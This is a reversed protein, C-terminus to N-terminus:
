CVSVIPFETVQQQKPVLKENQQLSFWAYHVGVLGPIMIFLPLYDKLVGM